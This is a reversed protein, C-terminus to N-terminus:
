FGRGVWVKTGLFGLFNRNDPLGSGVRTLDADVPNAIDAVKLRDFTLVIVSSDSRAVPVKPVM